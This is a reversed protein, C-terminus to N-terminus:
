GEPALVDQVRVQDRGSAKAKYLAVDARQVLSQANDSEGRLLTSVGMSMTLYAGVSSGPHPVAAQRIARRLREAYVKAQSLDTNTLVIAFEEGGYRAVIDTGDRISDHLMDSVRKLCKDGEVHGLIDNYIKFFDVDCLLLSVPVGMRQARAIENDLYEDFYRRNFLGTLGDTNSLVMLESALVEARRNQEELESVLERNEYEYGLSRMAFEGFRRATSVMFLYWGLSVAALLWNNQELSTILYIIAPVVIPLSFVVFIPLSVAYATVAGALLFALNAVLMAALLGEAFSALYLLFVGWLIGTVFISAGLHTFWKPSNKLEPSCNLYARRLYVRYSAITCYGAIWVLSVVSDSIGWFSYVLILGAIGSSIFASTSQAFLLELCRAYLREDSVWRM